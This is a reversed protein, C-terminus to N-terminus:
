KILEDLIELVRNKCGYECTNNELTAGFNLIKEDKEILEKIAQLLEEERTKIATSVIESLNISLINTKADLTILPMEFSGSETFKIEEPKPSHCKCNYSKLCNLNFEPHTCKECCKEESNPQSPSHCECDCEPDCARKGDKFCADGCKEESNPQPPLVKEALDCEQCYFIFTFGDGVMPKNKAHLYQRSVITTNRCFACINQEQNM